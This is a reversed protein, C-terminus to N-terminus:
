AAAAVKPNQPCLQPPMHWVCRVRGGAGPTHTHPPPRLQLRCLAQTAKVSRNVYNASNSAIPCVSPMAPQTHAVQSLSNCPVFFRTAFGCGAQLCLFSQSQRRAECKSGRSVQQTATPLTAGLLQHSSGALSYSLAPPWCQCCQLCGDLHWTPLM